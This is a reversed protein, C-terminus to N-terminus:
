ENADRDQVSMSNLRQVEQGLKISLRYMNMAIEKWDVPVGAADAALAAEMVNEREGSM